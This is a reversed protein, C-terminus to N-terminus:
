NRSDVKLKQIPYNHHIIFMRKINALKRFKVLFSLSSLWNTKLAKEIINNKIKTRDM